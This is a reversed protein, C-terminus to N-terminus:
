GAQMNVFLEDLLKKNNNGLPLAEKASLYSISPVIPISFGPGALEYWRAKVV